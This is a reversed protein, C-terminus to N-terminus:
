HSIAQELREIRRRAAELVLAAAVEHGIGDAEDAPQRVLQHLAEGRRELLRQDGVQHQVDDVARRGFLLEDLVDGCHVRHQM